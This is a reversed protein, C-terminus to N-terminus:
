PLVWRWEETAGDERELRVQLVRTREEFTARFERVGDLLVRPSSADSEAFVPTDQLMLRRRPRDLELKRLVAGGPFARTRLAVSEGTAVVRPPRNDPITDFAMVADDLIRWLARAAVAAAIPAERARAAKTSTITLEVAAVVLSALLAIALVVEVLTFGRRRM